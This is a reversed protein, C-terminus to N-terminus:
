NLCCRDPVTAKPSSSTLSWALMEANKAQRVVFGADLCERAEPKYGRENVNLM